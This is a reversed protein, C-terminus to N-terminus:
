NIEDAYVKDLIAKGGAALLTDALTEGIKEATAAPGSLQDKLIRQGDVGAILGRLTVM